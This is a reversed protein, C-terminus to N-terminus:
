NKASIGYQVIWGAPEPELSGNVKVGLQKAWRYAWMPGYKTVYTDPTSYARDAQAADLTVFRYHKDEFIKLVQDMLEANLLNAHLVMVHPIERGFITKHLQTYYDIEIATYALYEARLKEASDEDKRALMREYASSFVYDSTDITCAAVRYGRRALFAAVADHKEKTDGTHNFPFRLYRPSKGQAALMPGFTAEGSILEDQFQEVTLNNLDPHSYLHNGLDHGHQIWDGLIRGGLADGISQVKKENVFGIAPAHHKDLSALIARNVSEAQAADMAGVAPLDDFTLAVTRPQPVCGISCATVAALAHLLRSRRLSGSGAPM